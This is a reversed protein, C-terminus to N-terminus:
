VPGAKMETRAATDPPLDCGRGASDQDAILRTGNKARDPNGAVLALVIFGGGDHANLAGTQSGELVASIASNNGARKDWVPVPGRLPPVIANLRVM